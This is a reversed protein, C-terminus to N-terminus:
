SSGLRLPRISLLRKKSLTKCYWVAIVPLMQFLAGLMFPGMVGLALIHTLVRAEKTSADFVSDGFILLLVGAVIGFLSATVFFRLVVSLPPAQDLSLGSQNFM